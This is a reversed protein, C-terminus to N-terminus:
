AEIEQLRRRLKSDSRMQESLRKVALWVASMDRGLYVAAETLRLYEHKSLRLVFPVREIL